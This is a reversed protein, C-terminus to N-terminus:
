DGGARRAAIASAYVAAYRAASDHWSFDRAMGNRRLAAFDAPHEYYLRLAEHIANLLSGGTADPFVIGTPANAGAATANAGNERWPSVTDALGGTARVVPPAGYRMSYMQTLGCPEFRSPMLFFDAGAILRHALADDYAARVVCKGANAAAIALLRQELGHDGTGLVAVQMRARGLLDPLIDALLDAGKQPQLRAVLTFLPADALPELGLEAQLARKNAAKFASVAAAGAAADDDDELRAALRPDARPNWEADDIGNLIGSLDAARHRLVHDLGCGHEPALIERAYTPSVTTIKTAHYLGAKLFNARGHDEINDASWLWSPLRLYRMIDPTEIGQHRLNHITLVSAARGLPTARRTTNLLVPALAATWDHVHAIDPHWGSQLAFDLAAATMFGFRYANDNREGYIEPSGFLAHHELLQVRPQLPAPASEWVRCFETHRPALNVAVPAPFARWQAVPPVAPSSTLPVPPPTGGYCPLFVRVDHGAAALAKALSATMDGLGGTKALPAFEPTIFLIKLPTMLATPERPASLAESMFPASFFSCFLKRM